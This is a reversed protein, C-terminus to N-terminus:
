VDQVGAADFIRHLCGIADRAADQLPMAEYRATTPKMPEIIVPGDYGHRALLRVVEVADIIGNEMPMGRTADIQEDRPANADCLHLNIVKEPHMAAYYLDDQHSGSCYWHITDFVFGIDRSVEQTLAVVGMLSRIFGYKFQDRVTKPGMFELGYRIGNDDLVRYIAELRKVHWRFNEEYGMTDSGPWIHNYARTCGAIRALRSWQDFTALAKEFEGDDVKYMDCPAMILGFRMGMDDLRIKAEAAARPTGFAGAPVEIGKFGSNHATTLLDDFSHHNLGMTRPNLNTYM